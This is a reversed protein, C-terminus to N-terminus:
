QLDRFIGNFHTEFVKWGDALPRSFGIGTLMWGAMIEIEGARELAM